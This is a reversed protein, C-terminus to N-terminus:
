ASVEALLAAMGAPERAVASYRAHLALGGTSGAARSMREQPEHWFHWLDATGRVPRGLLCWLAMSWSEDEQGWGVFRPDLPVREYASRAIVTVGGGAQATHPPQELLNRHLIPLCGTALVEATAEANLRLVREHPMAWPAGREVATVAPYVGVTLWVDADAIILIDGDAQTLAAAVADAKCWREGPADGEVIQWGFDTWWRRLMAWVPARDPTSRWPVLISVSM